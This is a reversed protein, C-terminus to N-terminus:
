PCPTPKDFNPGFKGPAVADKRIAAVESPFDSDKITRAATHTYVYVGSAVSPMATVFAPTAQDSAHGTKWPIATFNRRRLYDDSVLDMVSTFRVWCNNILNFSALTEAPKLGGLASVCADLKSTAAANFNGGALIAKEAILTGLNNSSLDEPSFSSNRRGPGSMWYTLIEYAFGDDNAIRRAVPIFMSSPLQSVIKAEGHVSKVTTPAGSAQSIQDYLFKTLDIMDRIHGLDIFGAKGSYILGTQETSPDGHTGLNSPDVFNSTPIKPALICCPRSVLPSLVPASSTVASTSEFLAPPLKGSPRRAELYVTVRRNLGPGAPSDRRRLPRTAGASQVVVTLRRSSGPSRREMRAFLASRVAAARQLGLNQNYSAPGRSDTHGVLRVRAIPSSTKARASVYRAVREILGLQHANMAAKDFGFYDIHLFPRGRLIEPPLALPGRRPSFTHINRPAAASRRLGGTETEAIEALTNRLEIELEREVVSTSLLSM